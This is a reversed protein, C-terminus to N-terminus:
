TRKCCPRSASTSKHEELPLSRLQRTLRSCNPATTQGDEDLWDALALWTVEDATNDRLAAVFTVENM